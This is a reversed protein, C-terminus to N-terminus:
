VSLPLPYRMGFDDNMESVQEAVAAADAYGLSQIFAIDALSPEVPYAAILARTLRSTLGAFQPTTMPLPQVNDVGSGDPRPVGVIRLAYNVSRAGLLRAVYEHQGEHMVIQNREGNTLPRGLGAYAEAVLQDLEYLTAVQIVSPDTGTDNQGNDGTDCLPRALRLATVLESRMM